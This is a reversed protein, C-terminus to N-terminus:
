AKTVLSVIREPKVVDLFVGKTPYEAGVQARMVTRFVGGPKLDMECVPTTMRHALTCETVAAM